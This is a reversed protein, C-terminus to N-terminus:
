RLSVVFAGVVAGVFCGVVPTTSHGGPSGGASTKDGGSNCRRRHHRAESGARLVVSSRDDDTFPWLVVLEREVIPLRRKFREVTILVIRALVFGLIGARFEGFIAKFFGDRDIRLSVDNM